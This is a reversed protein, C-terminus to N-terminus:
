QDYEIAKNIYDILPKSTKFNDLITPICDKSTLTKDSVIEKTCFGKMKLLESAPNIEDYGDPKIM